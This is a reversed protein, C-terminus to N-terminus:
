SVSPPSALATAGAESSPSPGAPRSVPWPPIRTLTARYVNTSVSGSRTTSSGAFGTITLDPTTLLLDSGNQHTQELGWVVFDRSQPM